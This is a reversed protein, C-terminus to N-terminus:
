LQFTDSSMKLQNTLKTILLRSLLQLLQLITFFFYIFWCNVSHQKLWFPLHNIKPQRWLNVFWLQSLQEIERMYWLWQTDESCQPLTLGTCFKVYWTLAITSRAWGPLWSLCLVGVIAFAKFSQPGSVQATPLEVRDCLGYPEGAKIM